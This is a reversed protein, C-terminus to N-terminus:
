ARSSANGGGRPTELEPERSPDPAVPMAGLPVSAEEAPMPGFPTRDGSADSSPNGYGVPSNPIEEVVPDASSAAADVSQPVESNGRQHDLLPYIETAGGKEALGRLSNEPTLISLPAPSAAALQEVLSAPSSESDAYRAPEGSLIRPSAPLNAETTAPANFGGFLFERNRVM